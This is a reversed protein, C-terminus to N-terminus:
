AINTGKLKTDIIIPNLDKYNKLLYILSSSSFSCALMYNDNNIKNKLKLDNRNLGTGNFNCINMLFFATKNGYLSISSAANSSGSIQNSNDGRDNPSNASNNNSPAPNPQYFSRILETYFKPANYAIQSIEDHKINVHTQVFGDEDVIMLNGNSLGFVIFEDNPSWTASKIFCNALEYPQSWIRQGNVTIALVCGDQYCLLAMRGDHSWAFDNLACGRDNILEISWRGEYKAWIFNTGKSDCSALKQFPENWKVIRVESKHGRLNFNSRNLSLHNAQNSMCNNIVRTTEGNSKNWEITPDKEPSICSTFSCGVM